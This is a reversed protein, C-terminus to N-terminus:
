NNEIKVALWRSGRKRFTITSSMMGDVSSVVFVRTGNDEYKQGYDVNTIINSPFVPAYLMWQSADATGQLPEYSDPDIVSLEFSSAVHSRQFKEDAAFRRYFNLFDSNRNQSLDGRQIGVLRWAGLNKTFVYGAVSKERLNIMEVTVRKVATDSVNRLAREDDFIMTYVDRRSFLPEHKWGKAALIKTSDSSVVPLPFATRELQFAKNRMWNFVFDDFLGDAAAPPAPEAVSDTDTAVPQATSDAPTEAVSAQPVSRKCGLLVLALFLLPFYRQM